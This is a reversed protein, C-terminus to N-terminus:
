DEWSSNKKLSYDLDYYSEPPNSRPDRKRGMANLVDRPALIGLATIATVILAVWLASDGDRALWIAVGYALGGALTSLLIAKVLHM